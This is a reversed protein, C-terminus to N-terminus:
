TFASSDIVLNNDTNFSYDTHSLTNWGTTNRLEVSIVKKPILKLDVTEDSGSYYITHTETEDLNGSLTDNMYTGTSLIPFMIIAFLVMFIMIGSLTISFSGQKIQFLMIIIVVCIMIIISAAFLDNMNWDDQIHAFVYNIKVQYSSTQDGNRIEFDHDSWVTNTVHLVGTANSTYSTIVANDRYLTYVDNNQFGSLNFYVTGGTTNANFSLITDGSSAGAINPNLYSLTINIPNSSTINFDTNNFRIWSGSENYAVESFTIGGAPFTYNENDVQFVTHDDYNMDASVSYGLSVLVSLM